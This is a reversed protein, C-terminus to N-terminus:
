RDGISLIDFTIDLGRKLYEYVNKRSCDIGDAEAIKEVPFGNIYRLRIVKGAMEDRRQIESVLEETDEFERAFREVTNSIREVAEDVRVLADGLKDRNDGGLSLEGMSSTISTQASEAMELGVLNSELRDRVLAYGNLARDAVKQERTLKLRM